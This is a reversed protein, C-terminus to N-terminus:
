VQSQEMIYRFGLNSSSSKRTNGNRAAVRYRNCYSHHCLFSGGRMAYFINEEKMESAIPNSYTPNLFDSLPIRAHNLCWEWVNGVMQYLGYNNVFFKKVPATGIYGDLAENKHPFKGQWTNAYYKGDEVLNNGWPYELGQRGGRAAVEWEVETPLKGGAWDCYERADQWTIHVVPHNMKNIVSSNPGEPKNWCAGMMEIWWSMSTRFYDKGEVLGNLNVLGRFVLSSNIKEADTVYGTDDIFSLFNENTVTTESMYFDSFELMVAPGEKDNMIGNDHINGISSKQAPILRLKMGDKKNIIETYNM